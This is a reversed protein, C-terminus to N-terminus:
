GEVFAVKCGLNGIKSGKSRVMRHLTDPNGLIRVMPVLEGRVQNLQLITYPTGCTSEANQGLYRSPAFLLAFSPAM